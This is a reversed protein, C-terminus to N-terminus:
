LQRCHKCRASLRQGAAGSAHAWEGPCINTTTPALRAPKFVPPRAASSCRAARRRGQVTGLAVSAAPAGSAGARDFAATVWGYEAENDALLAALSGSGACPPAREPPASYTQGFVCKAWCSAMSLWALTILQPDCTPPLFREGAATALCACLGLCLLALAGSSKM